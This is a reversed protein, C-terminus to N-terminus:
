RCRDTLPYAQADSMGQLFLARHQDFGPKLLTHSPFISVTNNRYATKFARQGQTIMYMLTKSYVPHLDPLDWAPFYLIHRLGDDSIMSVYAEDSLIPKLDGEWASVQPRFEAYLSASLPKPEFLDLTPHFIWSPLTSMEIHSVPVPFIKQVKYIPLDTDRQQEGPIHQERYEMLPAFAEITRAHIQIVRRKSFSKKELTNELAEFHKYLFSRLKSKFFWSEKDKFIKDLESLKTLQYEIWHRSESQSLLSLVYTGFGSGWWSSIRDSEGSELLASIWGAVYFVEYSMGAGLVLVCKKESTQAHAPDQTVFPTALPEPKKHLSQCGANLLCLCILSLSLRHKIM